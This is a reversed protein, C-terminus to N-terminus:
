LSVFKVQLKEPRRAHFVIGFKQIGKVLASEDPSSAQYEILDTGEKREPIVTHCTALLTLFEDILPATEHQNRLNKLLEYSNFESENGSGYCIGAVSCRKFEMKNCTLTGTKDSFIYKVQGLEENLNSTRAVAAFGNEHDFMDDDWIIYFAQLFIVLELTVQLSIPILNNYLIIFTLLSYLFSAPKKDKFGIYWHTEGNRSTWIESAIASVLCIILLTLFLFM